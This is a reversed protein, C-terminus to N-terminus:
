PPEQGVEVSFFLTMKRNFNALLGLLPQSCIKRLSFYGRPNNIPRATSYPARPHPFLFGQKVKRPPHRRTKSVLVAPGVWPWLFLIVRWLAHAPILSFAHPCSSATDSLRPLPGPGWVLRRAWGKPMTAFGFKLSLHRLPVM